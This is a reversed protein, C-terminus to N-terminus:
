RGPASDDGRGLHRYLRRDDPNRGSRGRDRPQGRLQGEAGFLTALNVGGFIVYFAIVGILSIVSAAEPRRLFPRLANM